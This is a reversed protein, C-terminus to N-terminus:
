FVYCFYYLVLGIGGYEIFNGDKKFLNNVKWILCLLKLLVMGVIFLM